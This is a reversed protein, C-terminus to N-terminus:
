LLLVKELKLLYRKMDLGGAYGTLAGDSGLVRHCPIVIAIPNAGNAQGTARAVSGLRRALEGYSLSHGWPIARLEAWVRQHFLTGRPALPLDFTLPQGLWYTDLQDRLEGFVPLDRRLDASEVRARQLSTLAGDADAEATLPGV